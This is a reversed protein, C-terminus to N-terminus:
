VRQKHNIHNRYDKYIAFGSLAMGIIGLLLAIGGIMLLNHYLINNGGIMFYNIAITPSITPILHCDSDCHGSAIPPTGLDCTETGTIIGDGCIPTCM